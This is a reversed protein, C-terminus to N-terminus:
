ARSAWFSVATELLILGLAQTLLGLIVLLLLESTSRGAGLAFMGSFGKLLDRMVVGSGLLLAVLIVSGVSQSKASMYAAM